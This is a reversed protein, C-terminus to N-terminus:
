AAGCLKAQVMLPKLPCRPCMPRFPSMLGPSLPAGTTLVSPLTTPM